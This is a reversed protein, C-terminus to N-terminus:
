RSRAPAPRPSSASRGPRLVNAFGLGVGGVVATGCDPGMVLLGRRAAEDKLRSRRTSRSTTRSSCSRSAPACRTWRRSSRTSARSRSSRWRAVATASRPASPTRACRRAPGAVEAVRRSLRAARRARHGRRRADDDDDADVAVLLDNPTATAIAAPDFGLREYVELNLPTAMAVIAADCGPCTPSRQSAQMLTVSDHYTGRRVEVHVNMDGGRATRSLSRTCRSIRAGGGPRACLDHGSTSGVAFLGQATATVTTSTAAAHWPVCRGPRRRSSRAMPPPWSCPRRCRRPTPPRADTIAAAATAPLRDMLALAALAGALVDDGAPTLGPGAGLLARARLADGEALAAVAATAREVDVGYAAPPEAALRGRRAGGDLAGRTGAPRRDLAADPGVVPGAALTGARPSRVVTWGRRAASGATRAAAGRVCPSRCGCLVPRSWHSCM